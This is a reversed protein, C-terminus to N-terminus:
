ANVIYFVATFIHPQSSLLYIFLAIAMLYRFCSRINNELNDPILHPCPTRPSTRVSVEFLISM